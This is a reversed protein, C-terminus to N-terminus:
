PLFGRSRLFDAMGSMIQRAQTAGALPEDWVAEAIEAATLTDLSTSITAVAGAALADGVSCAVTVAGAITATLGAASADGVACSITTATSVSATLGAAAADGVTANITIPSSITAPSGAAVADGVACDISNGTAITAVAGAAVADGVACGITISSAVNAQAGVAAADGVSCSITVPQSVTATQGAAAADGVSAAITIPSSVTAQSGAAAANGAVCDITVGGGLFIRNRRYTPAYLQWPNVTLAALETSTLGKRFAAAGYIASRTWRAVSVANGSVTFPNGSKSGSRVGNHYFEAAGGFTSAGLCVFDGTSLGSLTQQNAGNWAGAWDMGWTVSSGTKSFIDLTHQNDRRFNLWQASTDAADFIFWVLLSLETAGELFGNSDLYNSATPTPGVLRGATGHRAEQLEYQNNGDQSAAYKGSVLNLLQSPTSGNPAGWLYSLGRRLWIPSPPVAGNPQRSRPVVRRAM